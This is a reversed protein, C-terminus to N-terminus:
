RAGRDMLLGGCNGWVLDNNSKQAGANGSDAKIFSKASLLHGLEHILLFLRAKPTNSQISGIQTKFVNGELFPSESKYFGLNTNFIIVNTGGDPGPNTVANATSGLRGSIAAKGTVYPLATLFEGM